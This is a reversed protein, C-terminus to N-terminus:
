NSEPKTIADFHWDDTMTVSGGVPLVEYCTACSVRYCQTHINCIFSSYINRDAVFGVSVDIHFLAM